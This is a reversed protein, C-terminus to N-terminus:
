TLLVALILSHFRHPRHYENDVEGLQLKTSRQINSAQFKQSEDNTM